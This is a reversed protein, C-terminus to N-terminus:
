RLGEYRDGAFRRLALDVTATFGADPLPRRCRDGTLAPDRFGKHALVVLVPEGSRAGIVAVGAVEDWGVAWSTNRHIARSTPHDLGLQREADDLATKYLPIARGLDGV